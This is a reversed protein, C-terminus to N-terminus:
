KENIKVTTQIGVPLTSKQSQSYCYLLGIVLVIGLWTSKNLGFIKTESAENAQNVQSTDFDIKISGEDIRRELEKLLEQNTLPQNPM